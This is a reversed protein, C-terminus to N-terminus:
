RGVEPAEHHWRDFLRFADMMAAPQDLLGGAVPLLTAAAEGRLKIELWLDALSLL